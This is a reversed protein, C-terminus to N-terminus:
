AGGMLNIGILTQGRGLVQYGHRLAREELDSRDINCMLLRTGADRAEQIVRTIVADLAASRVDKKVAPNSVLMETWALTSDSLYLWWAAAGPVCWGTSSFIDRAPAPMGRAVVWSIADTVHEDTARVVEM